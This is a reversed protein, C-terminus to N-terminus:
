DLKLEFVPFWHALSDPRETNTLIEKAFPYETNEPYVVVVFLKIKRTDKFIDQDTKGLNEVYKRLYEMSIVPINKPITNEEAWQRCAEILDGM